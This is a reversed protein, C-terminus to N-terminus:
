WILSAPRCSLHIRNMESACSYTRHAQNTQRNAAEIARYKPENGSEVLLKGLRINQFINSVNSYVARKKRKRLM